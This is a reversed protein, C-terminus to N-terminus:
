LLIYVKINRKKSEQAYNVSKMANIAYETASEVNKEINNLM